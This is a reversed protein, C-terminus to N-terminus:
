GKQEAASKIVANPLACAQAAGALAKELAIGMAALEESSLKQQLGEFLIREEKRIHASMNETFDRLAPANLGGAQATSFADRLLSHENRLERTLSELEPFRDAIPFVCEEEATFHFKIEQESSKKV